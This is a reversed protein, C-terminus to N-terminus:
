DQADAKRVGLEIVGKCLKFNHFAMARLTGAELAEDVDDKSQGTFYTPNRTVSPIQPAKEEKHGVVFTGRSTAVHGISGLGRLNLEKVDPDVLLIPFTVVNGEAPPNIWNIKRGDGVPSSVASPFTVM